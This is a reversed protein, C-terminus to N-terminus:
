PMQTRLQGNDQERAIARENVGCFGPGNPNISKQEFGEIGIVQRSGNSVHKLLPLRWVGLDTSPQSREGDISKKLTELREIRAEERRLTGVVKRLSACSWTVGHDRQVM